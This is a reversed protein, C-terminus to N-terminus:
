ALLQRLRLAFAAIAEQTVRHAEEPSMLEAGAEDLAYPQRYTWIPATSHGGPSISIVATVEVEWGGATYNTETALPYPYIDGHRLRPWQEDWAIMFTILRRIRNRPSQVVNSGALM